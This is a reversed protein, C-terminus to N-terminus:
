APDQPLAVDLLEVDAGASPQPTRRSSVRQGSPLRKFTLYGAHSIALLTVIDGNIPPLSRQPDDGTLMAAVAASYATIVVVTLLMMQIKGLDLRDEEGRKEARVLDTLEADAVSGQARVSQDTLQTSKILQSGSFSIWSIGMLVWLEEPVTINLPNVRDHAVNDAAVAFVTSIVLITWAAMQLRSVSVRYRDDILAGIWRGNTGKGFCGFAASLLAAVALWALMPARTVTEVFPIALGAALAAATALLGVGYWRNSLEQSM